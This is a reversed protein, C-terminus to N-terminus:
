ADVSTSLLYQSIVFFERGNMVRIKARFTDGTCDIYSIYNPTRKIIIVKEGNEAKYWRNIEFKKTAQTM